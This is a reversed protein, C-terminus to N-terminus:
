SPFELIVQVFYPTLSPLVGPVNLGINGSADATAAHVFANPPAPTLGFFYNPTRDSLVPVTDQPLYFAYVNTPEIDTDNVKPQLQLFLKGGPAWATPSSWAVNQRGAPPAAQPANEIVNDISPGLVFVSM